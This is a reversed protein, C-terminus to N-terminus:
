HVEFRLTAGGRYSSGTTRVRLALDDLVHRTCYKTTPFSLRRLVQRTKMQLGSLANGEERQSARHSGEDAPVQNEIFRRLSESVWFRLIERAQWRRGAGQGRLVRGERSERSKQQVPKNSDWISPNRCNRSIVLGLHHVRLRRGSVIADDSEAFREDVVTSCRGICKKSGFM